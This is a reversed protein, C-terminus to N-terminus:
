IHLLTPTCANQVPTASGSPPTFFLLVPSCVAISNYVPWLLRAAFLVICPFLIPIAIPSLCRAHALLLHHLVLVSTLFPWHCTRACPGTGEGGDELEKTCLAARGAAVVGCLDGEVACFQVVARAELRGLKVSVRVAGVKGRAFLSECVVNALGFLAVNAVGRVLNRCSGRRVVGGDLSARWELRRCMLLCESAGERSVQMKGLGVAQWVVCPKTRWVGSGRCPWEARGGASRRM